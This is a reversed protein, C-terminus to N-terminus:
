EGGQDRRDHGTVGEREGAADALVARHNENRGVQLVQRFDRRNQNNLREFSEMVGFRSGNGNHQQDSREHSETQDVPQFAPAL